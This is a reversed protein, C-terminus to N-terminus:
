DYLGIYTSCHQFWNRRIKIKRRNNGSFYYGQYPGAYDIHIHQWNKEPVDWPHLPAKVPSNKHSVCAECSRVLLEIDADIGKWYVYRRALQKMKSAGIHTRHFEQLVLSQLTKPIVM